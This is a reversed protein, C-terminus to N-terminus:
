EERLSLGAARVARRLPAHPPNNRSGWEMLHGAYDTNVVYTADGDQQVVITQSQRRMWPAGAQRTFASAHDAVAQAANHLAKRNEEQKALDKDFGKDVKFRAM